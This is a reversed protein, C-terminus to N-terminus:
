TLGEIDLTCISKDPYPVTIRFSKYFGYATLAEYDDSGVWVLPTTRYAALTAFTNRMASNDLMVDCSLRKSYAREVITYNGFDDTTKRSYDTISLEPSYQTEGIYKSKGAVMTGVMVTEGTAASVTVAITADPYPPLDTIVVTDQAQFEGFFYTYWDTIDDHVVLAATYSYVVGDAPDTMVVSVTDGTVGLLAVSDVVTGMALSVAISTTNSTVSGNLTDFMRWRNTAGLDLWKPTDGSTNLDPQANTHGVLCEYIKHSYICRNGSVYATSSSWATYETEAVNSSTLITDTIAVPRIIKM